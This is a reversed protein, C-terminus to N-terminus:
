IGRPLNRLAQEIRGRGVPNASHVTWTPPKFYPNTATQAELWCAVEYGTGAQPPGLDHDLSIHTVQGEELIQIAETASKALLHFDEPIPRCDDLWLRM